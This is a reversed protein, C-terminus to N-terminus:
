LASSRLRPSPPPDSVRKTWDLLSGDVRNCCKAPAATADGTDDGDAADNHTPSLVRRDYVLWVVAVFPSSSGGAFPLLRSDPPPQLFLRLPQPGSLSGETVSSPKLKEAPLKEM